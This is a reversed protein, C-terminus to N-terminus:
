SALDSLRWLGLSKDTFRPFFETCKENIVSLPKPFSLPELELNRPTWEGTVIVANAMRGTFTTTLLYTSGSRKMNAVALKVDEFAFHVLCDRCLILDVRPLDSTLLDLHVFSRTGTAYIQNSAILERVIDAGIYEVGLDVHKMWNFDGCPIDLVSKVGAAKIFLPLQRRVEETQIVTSGQGSRSETGQFTNNRYYDTFLQEINM